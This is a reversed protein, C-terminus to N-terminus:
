GTHAEGSDLALREGDLQGHLPVVRALQARVEALAVEVDVAVEVRGTHDHHVRQERRWALEPLHTEALVLLLRDSGQTSGDLARDFFTKRITDRIGARGAHLAAEYATNFAQNNRCLSRFASGTSGVEAAADARNKGDAVLKLFADRQKLTPVARAM